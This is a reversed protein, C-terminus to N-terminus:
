QGDGVVLNGDDDLSMERLYVSPAFARDGYISRLTNKNVAGQAGLKAGGGAVWAGQWISALIRAGDLMRAATLKGYAKWIAAVRGRGPNDVYVKVLDLPPIAEISRTMLKVVEVAASRGSDVEVLKQKSVGPNVLAILDVAHQDLMKTEYASHVGEGEGTEPDGDHYQSVHLPQCADGVYHALVGAACVFRPVDKDDLAEKMVDFLQWVRFPLLGQEGPKTHGLSMYFETWKEPEVNSEKASYQLLTAKLKQSREDMDAFHNPGEKGRKTTGMKWSIDPVDALAVFQSRALAEAINEIDADSFSVRDVNAEMLAKLSKNTPMSCAVQGIKYHGTKGWTEPLGVNQDSVIDVDLERCITGLSTALAFQADLEGGPGAFSQSGWHLAIPRPRATEPVPSGDAPPPPELFWVAGSNGHMSLATAADRVQKQTGHSPPGILLDAVYDFGGLSRYRYFLAQIEGRMLGSGAGNAVVSCGVLEVTASDANLDALTDFEGIRYVQSTWRSVDEIRILGADINAKTRTGKFGPY